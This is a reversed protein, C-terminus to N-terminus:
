WNDKTQKCVCQQWYLLLSLKIVKYLKGYNSIFMLQNVHRESVM